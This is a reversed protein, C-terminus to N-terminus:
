VLFLWDYLNRVEGYDYEKLVSPTDLNDLIPNITIYGNEYVNTYNKGYNVCYPVKVNNKCKYALGHVRCVIPRYQYVSCFQNILFPCKGGKVFTKINNQVLRKDNDNLAIYGQMLYELEAQSLPYDGNECCLSCGKKCHIFEAHEKFYIDLQKDFKQLFDGYNM